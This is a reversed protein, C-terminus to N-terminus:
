IAIIHKRIVVKQRPTASLRQCTKLVLHVKVIFFRHAVVVVVVATPVVIDRAMSVVAEIQCITVEKYAVLV